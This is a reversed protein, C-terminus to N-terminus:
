IYQFFKHLTPTIEEKIKQYVKDTISVPGLTKKRHNKALFKAKIIAM